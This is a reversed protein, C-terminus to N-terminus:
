AKDDDDDYLDKNFKNYFGKHLPSDKRTTEVLNDVRGTQPYQELSEQFCKDLNEFSKRM